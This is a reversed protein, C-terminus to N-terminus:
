ETGLLNGAYIETEIETEIETIGQTIRYKVAPIETNQTLVNTNPPGWIKVGEGNETLSTVRCICDRNKLYASHELAEGGLEPNRASVAFGCDYAVCDISSEIRHKRIHGKRTPILLTEVTIGMFPSWTSSVINDEILFSDIMRRVFIHGSIEFALM